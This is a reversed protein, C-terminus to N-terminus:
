SIERAILYNIQDNSGQMGKVGQFYKRWIKRVSVSIGVSGGGSPVEIGAEIYIQLDRKSIKKIM